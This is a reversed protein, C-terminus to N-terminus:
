NTGDKTFLSISPSGWAFFLTVNMFLIAALGVLVIKKQFIKMLEFKVMQGM